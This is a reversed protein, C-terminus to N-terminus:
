EDESEENKRFVMLHQRPLGKRNEVFELGAAVVTKSAQPITEEEV